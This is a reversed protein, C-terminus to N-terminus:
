KSISIERLQNTIDSFAEILSESDTADFYQAEASACEKLIGKIVPDTIQFAITYISIAQKKINVCTDRTLEDALLNDASEHLPYTPARTNEGDTMLILIKRGNVSTLQDFPIGESFPPDPTLLAWGWALGAPIYTWGSPNLGNIASSVESKKDSLPTIPKPCNVPSGPSFSPDHANQMIAPAKNVLYDSDLTTHPNDRSGVCGVWSTDVGTLWPESKNAIGVNVYQAFPAIAIKVRANPADFLTDVLDGAASKLTQIKNDNKMSGTTDLAMAIELYPPPGLKVETDTDLNLSSIGVAGLITSPMEGDIELNFVTDAASSKINFKKFNVSARGRMQHDFVKRGVATLTTEDASPHQSSYRAATILAADAAQQVETRADGLRMFDVAIGIASILLLFILGFVLAINGERDRLFRCATNRACDM